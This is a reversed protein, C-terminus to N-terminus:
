MRVIEAISAFQLSDNSTWNRSHKKRVDAAVFDHRRWQISAFSNLTRIDLSIPLLLTLSVKPSELASINLVINFLECNFLISNSKLKKRKIMEDRIWKGNVCYFGWKRVIFEEFCRNLHECKLWDFSRYVDFSDYFSKLLNHAHLITWEFCNKM